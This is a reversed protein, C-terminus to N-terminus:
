TSPTSDFKVSDVLNNQMFTRPTEDRESQHQSKFLSDFKYKKAAYTEFRTFPSSDRESKVTKEENNSDNLYRNPRLSDQQRPVFSSSLM